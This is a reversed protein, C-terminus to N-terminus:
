YRGNVTKISRINYITESISNYVCVEKESQFKVSAYLVDIDLIYGQSRRGVVEYLIFKNTLITKPLLYLKDRNRICVVSIYEANTAYLLYTALDRIFVDIQLRSLIIPNDLSEYDVIIKKVYEFVISRCISM